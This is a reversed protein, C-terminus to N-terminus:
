ELPLAGQEVEEDEVAAKLAQYLDAAKRKALQQERLGEDTFIHRKGAETRDVFNIALRIIRAAWADHKELAELRDPGM